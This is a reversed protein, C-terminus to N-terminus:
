HLVPYQLEHFESGGHWMHSSASKVTLPFRRIWIAPGSLWGDSTGIDKIVFVFISKLKEESYFGVNYFLL